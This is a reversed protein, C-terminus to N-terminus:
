LQEPARAAADDGTTFGGLNNGPDPHGALDWAGVIELVCASREEEIL